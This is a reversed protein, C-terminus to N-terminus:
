GLNDLVVFDTISGFAFAGFCDVPIGCVGLTKVVVEFVTM